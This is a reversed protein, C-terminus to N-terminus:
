GLPYTLRDLHLLVQFIKWFKLTFKKSLSMLKVNTEIDDTNDKGIIHVLEEIIPKDEILNYIDFTDMLIDKIDYLVQKQKNERRLKEQRTKRKLVEQLIQMQELTITALDYHPLVIVEELIVDDQSVTDSSKPTNTSSM